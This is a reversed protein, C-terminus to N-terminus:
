VRHELFNKMASACSQDPAQAESGTLGCRPVMVREMSYGHHEATIQQGNLEAVGAGSDYRPEGWALHVPAFRAVPNMTGHIGALTRVLLNSDEEEIM